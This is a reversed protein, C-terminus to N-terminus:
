LISGMTAWVVLREMELAQMSIFYHGVDMQLVFYHGPVREM